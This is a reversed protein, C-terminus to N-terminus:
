SEVVPEYNQPVLVKLFMEDIEELTRGKTEPVFIVTFIVLPITLAGFVFGIKTGLNAYDPSILYPCGCIVLVSMIWNTGLAIGLAKSRLRNSPIEGSIVPVVPGWSASYTFTFICVFAIVCRAAGVSHPAVTSITSFALMCFSMVSAGTILITRRGFWKTLLLALLSGAIGCCASIVAILFANTFGTLLFFYTLYGGIFGTGTLQEGGFLVLPIITRQLDTGTFCKYFSAASSELEKEIATFAITDNLERDLEDTSYTEGRIKKLNIRAESIRGRTILWGSIMLKYHGEPRSSHSLESPAEPVIWILLLLLFPVLTGVMLPIRYAMATPLDYTGQNVLTGILGAINTFIQYFTVLQGRIEVPTVETVYAIALVAACGIGMGMLGRGVLLGAVHDIMQLSAGLMCLVATIALGIKRGYRNGFTGSVLSGVIAFGLEIGYLRTQDRASM